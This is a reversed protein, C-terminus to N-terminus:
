ENVVKYVEFILVADEFLNLVEEIQKTTFSFYTNKIPSTIMIKENDKANEYFDINEKIEVLSIYLNYFRNFSMYSVLSDLQIEIQKCHSCHKISGINNKAIIESNRCM